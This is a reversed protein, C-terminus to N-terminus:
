AVDVRLCTLGLAVDASSTDSYFFDNSLLINFHQYILYNFKGREILKYIIGVM